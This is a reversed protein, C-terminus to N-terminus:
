NIISSQKIAKAVLLAEESTVKNNEKNDPRIILRLASDNSMFSWCWNAALKM